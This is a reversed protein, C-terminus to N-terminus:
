WDSNCSSRPPEPGDSSSYTISKTRQPRGPRIFRILLRTRRRAPAGTREDSQDAWTAWHETRNRANLAIVRTRRAPNLVPRISTVLRSFLPEPAETRSKAGAPRARRQRRCDDFRDHFGAFGALSRSRSSFRYPSRRPPAYPHKDDVLIEAAKLATIVGKCLANELRRSLDTGAALRSGRLGHASLYAPVGACGDGPAWIESRPARATNAITEGHVPRGTRSCPPRSPDFGTRLPTPWRAALPRRAAAFNRSSKDRRPVLRGSLTRWSSRKRRPGARMVGSWPAARGRGETEPDSSPKQRGPSRNAADRLPWRRRGHSFM